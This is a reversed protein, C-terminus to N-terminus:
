EASVRKKMAKLMERSIRVTGLNDRESPDHFDSGGTALLGNRNATSLYYSTESESHQPYYVELGDIEM